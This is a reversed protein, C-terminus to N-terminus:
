QYITYKINWYIKYMFEFFTPLMGEIGGVFDINDYEKAFLPYLTVLFLGKRTSENIDGWVWTSNQWPNTVTMPQETTLIVPVVKKNSITQSVFDM